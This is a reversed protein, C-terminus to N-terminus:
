NVQEAAEGAAPRYLTLRSPGPGFSWGNYGLLEGAPESGFSVERVELYAGTDSFAVLTATDNEEVILDGAFLSFKQFEEGTHPLRVEIKRSTLLADKGNKIELRFGGVRSGRKRVVLNM